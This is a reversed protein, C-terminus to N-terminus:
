QINESVSFFKKVTNTGVIIADRDKVIIDEQNGANIEELNLLNDGIKNNERLLLEYEEDKRLIKENLEDIKEQLNM